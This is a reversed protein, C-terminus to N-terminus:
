KEKQFTIVARQANVDQFEENTKVLKEEIKEVTLQISKIKERIRTRDMDVRKMQTQLQTMFVSLDRNTTPLSDLFDNITKCAHKVRKQQANIHLETLTDLDNQGRSIDRNVKHIENQQTELQQDIMELTLNAKNIRLIKALHHLIRNREDDFDETGGLELQIQQLQTAADTIMKLVHEERFLRKQEEKEQSLLNQIDSLKQKAESLRDKLSILQSDVETLRNKWQDSPLISGCRDCTIHAQDKGEDLCIRLDRAQLTLTDMQETLIQIQTTTIQHNETLEEINANTSEILKSTQLRVDIEFQIKKLIEHISEGLDIGIDLDVIPIVRKIVGNLEGLLNNRRVTEKKSLDKVRQLSDLQPAIQNQISILDKLKKNHHTLSVELNNQQQMLKTLISKENELKEIEQFILQNKVEFQTFATEFNLSQEITNQSEVELNTTNVNDSNPYIKRTNFEPHTELKRNIASIMQQYNRFDDLQKGLRTITEEVHNNETKAQLQSQYLTDKEQRLQDLNKKIENNLKTNQEIDQEIVTLVKETKLIKTKWTNIIAEKKILQSWGLERKLFNKKEFLEKKQQYKAYEKKWYELTQEANKLLSAISSEESLVQNLKNHAELVHNRYKTFGVADEVMQLKKESTTTGFEMMMHQHMLILMNDPNIGFLQFIENIESKNVPQFNVEFWYNGERNLYRSIRLDDVDYKPIPRTKDKLQNDFVLTVRAQDEGWRILDSLKRGRETYIQGMAVSIALLISSKGSGNPGCIVNLGSHLPIRSYKYSMFNELIIETILM